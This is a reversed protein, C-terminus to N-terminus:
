ERWAIERKEMERGGGWKKKRFNDESRNLLYIM